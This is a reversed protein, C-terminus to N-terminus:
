VRTQNVYMKPDGDGSSLHNPHSNHACLKSPVPTRTQSAAWLAQGEHSPSLPESEDQLAMSSSIVPPVSLKRGEVWSMMVEMSEDQQFATASAQRTPDSGESPTTQRAQHSTVWLTSPAPFKGTIHRRTKFCPSRWARLSLCVLLAPTTEPSLDQHPLVPDRAIFALSFRSVEFMAHPQASVRHDSGPGHEAEALICGEEKSAATGGHM